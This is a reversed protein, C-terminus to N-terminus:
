ISWMSAHMFVALNSNYIHLWCVSKYQIIFSPMKCKIHIICKINRFNNLSIKIVITVSDYDVDSGKTVQSPHVQVMTVCFLVWPRIIKQPNYNNYNNHASSHLNSVWPNDVYANYSWTKVHSIMSDTSETHFPASECCAFHM